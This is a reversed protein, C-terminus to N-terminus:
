YSVSVVINSINSANFAIECFTEVGEPKELFYNDTLPLSFVRDIFNKPLHYYEVLGRSSTFMEIGTTFDGIIITKM